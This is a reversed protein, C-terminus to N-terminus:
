SAESTSSVSVMEKHFPFGFQKHKTSSFSIATTTDQSSSGKKGKSSPGKGKGKANGLIFTIDSLTADNANTPSYKTPARPEDVARRRAKKPRGVKTRKQPPEVVENANGDDHEIELWRFEDPISNISGSYTLKMAKKTYYWHVHEHAFQQNYMFVAVDHMCPIGSIQWMGCDCHVDITNVLFFNGCPELTDYWEGRDHIVELKRAEKENMMLHERAYPTISDNWKELEDWKESFRVMIKRRLLELLTLIPKDREDKILKNFSVSMNNTVHDSKIRYDFAHRAWKEVPESMLWNVADVSDEGVWKLAEKFDAASGVRATHWRIANEYKKLKAYSDVKMTKLVIKKARYLTQRDCRVGFRDQLENRLTKVEITPNSQITTQLMTAIWRTNAEKNEVVRRCFLHGGRVSKIMYTVGDPLSSAHLRWDCTENKCTVTYRYGKVAARTLKANGFVQEEKLEISGNSNRAWQHQICYKTM